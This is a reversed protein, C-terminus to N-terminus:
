ERVAAAGLLGDVFERITPHPSAGRVVLECRLGAADAREKLKSGFLPHHIGHSPNKAPVTFDNGVELYIPSDARDVHEIPSYERIAAIYQGTNDIIEQASKAGFSRFIMAHRNTEPGINDAIWRPDLNTQPILAVAGLPKTSERAIPDSSRPDALDDHLALWLSSCGGASSGTCIILRPDINWERGMHRVFQLARAADALPAPLIDTDTLRYRISVVSIGRELWDAPIETPHVDGLYWGGGHIRFIVPTPRDSKARWFNLVNREHPGYRVGALTPAIGAAAPPPASATQASAPGCWLLGVLMAAQWLIGTSPLRWRESVLKTM